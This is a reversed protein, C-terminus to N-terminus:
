LTPARGSAAAPSSLGIIAPAAIAKEETKTTPLESRSRPNLAEQAHPGSFAVTAALAVPGAGGSGILGAPSVGAPSGSTIVRRERGMRGRGDARM